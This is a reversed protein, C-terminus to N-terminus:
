KIKTNLGSGSKNGSNDDDDDYGGGGGLITVWGADANNEFARARRQGTTM